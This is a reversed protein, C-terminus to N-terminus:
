PLPYADLSLPSRNRLLYLRRDTALIRHYARALAVSRVPRGSSTVVRLNTTGETLAPVKNKGSILLHLRGRRDLAMDLVLIQYRARVSFSNAQGRVSVDPPAIPVDSEPRFEGLLQGGRGYRRILPPYNFSFYFGGARDPVIRGDSLEANATEDGYDIRRGFSRLLRGDTGYLDFLAEGAGALVILEGFSNVEIKLPLRRSLTIEQQVACQPTLKYIKGRVGSLVWINGKQDVAMDSAVATTEPGCLRSVKGDNIFFISSLTTDLLYLSGRSGNVIEEPFSYPADTGLIQSQPQLRNEQALIHPPLDELLLLCFSLISRVALSRALTLSSKQHIVSSSSVEVQPM